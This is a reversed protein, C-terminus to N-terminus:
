GAQELAREVIYRGIPIAATAAPSPANCLHLSNETEIILFDHLLEGQTSVTQARVGASFPVLDTLTLQPCYKRVEQLYGRRWWSNRLERLGVGVNGALLRWFGGFGAMEILDKGDLVSKSYGERALALVANPGVTIGGDIMRTLHVGLFPLGPDPIPYILHSVLGNLAPRLAFYEGRFPVLQFDVSIGAARAMRDAFLGACAILHRAQLSGYGVHVQVGDPTEQVSHVHCGLKVEGGLRQFLRAMHRAIDAFNVIGSSPVFLAGVGAINPERHRLAQEDVQEIGIQNVQAREYLAQMRPLESETTAVLLKGPQEFAIGHEQCFEKTRRNGTRCFEAKLSGPQYYVGAHIVGSNHSSQHAALAPEKEILVVTADPLRQKLQWAVSAGIIGGGVIAFDYM